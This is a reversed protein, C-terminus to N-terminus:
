ATFYQQACVTPLAYLAAALQFDWISRNVQKASKDITELQLKSAM